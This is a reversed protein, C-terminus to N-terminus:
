LSIIDIKSVWSNQSKSSSHLWGSRNLMYRSILFYRLTLIYLICLDMDVFWGMFLLTKIIIILIKNKFLCLNEKDWYQFSYFKSFFKLVKIAKLHLYQFILLRNPKFSWRLCSQKPCMIIVPKQSM